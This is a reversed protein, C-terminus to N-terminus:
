RRLCPDSRVPWRQHKVQNWGLTPQYKRIYYAVPKRQPTIEIGMRIINGNPLIDNYREDILEPEILQLAFGYRNVGSGKLMRLFIEGDRKVGTVCM